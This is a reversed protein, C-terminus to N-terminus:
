KYKTVDSTGNCSSSNLEERGEGREEGEDTWDRQQYGGSEVFELFEGNTVKYKSAEFDPVSSYIICVDILM